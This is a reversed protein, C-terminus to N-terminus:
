QINEGDIVQNMKAKIESVSSMNPQMVYLLQSGSSFCSQKDGTGVANASTINWSAGDNLQMRILETMEDKSMNTEVSDSVSALLSNANTLIAPSMAKKIIATIVAQQNKGRQNDGAAFSKRERAFALAQKGNM